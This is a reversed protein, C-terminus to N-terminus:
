VMNQRSHLLRRIAEWQPLQEQWRLRNNTQKKGQHQQSFVQFHRYALIQVDRIAYWGSSHQYGIKNPSIWLTTAIHCGRTGIDQGKGGPTTSYSICYRWSASSQLEQNLANPKVQQTQLQLLKYIHQRSTISTASISLKLKQTHRQRRQCPQKQAVSRQM